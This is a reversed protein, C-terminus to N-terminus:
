ELVGDGKLSQYEDASLGILETLVYETDQGLLPAPRDLSGPTRSLTFESRETAYPGIEPHDLYQFHGRHKLQPDEFLDRSDNVVGAPVGVMQLTDMLQRADWEKTWDGIIRDLEDECRKRGLFDSFREQEIMENGTRVM